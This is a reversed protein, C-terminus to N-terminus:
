QRIFEIIDASTYSSEISEHKKIVMKKPCIIISETTCSEKKALIHLSRGIIILPNNVTKKELDELLWDHGARYNVDLGLIYLNNSICAHLINNNGSKSTVIFYFSDYMDRYSGSGDCFMQIQSPRHTKKGHYFTYM